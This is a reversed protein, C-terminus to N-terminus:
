SFVEAIAYSAIERGSESGGSLSERLVLQMSRRHSLINDLQGAAFHEVALAGPNRVASALELATLMEPSVLEDIGFHEGYSPQPAKRYIVEDVRAVTCCAGLKRALSACVLNTEDSNTVALFLDTQDVGAQVLM